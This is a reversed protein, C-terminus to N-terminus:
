DDGQLIREVTGRTVTHYGPRAEQYVRRAFALGEPTEALKRYLPTILWRRGVDILYAELHPYSPQYNNAIVHLFWSRKVEGNAKTSFNRARDLQRMQVATLPTPLNDLFHTWEQSSWQATSLEGAPTGAVWAEIQLEVMDFKPSTIKPANDPLGPLYVWEDIKLEDRLTEDNGLLESELYGLFHSSTMTQFAFKDFYGRLFADWKKRGVTEELLRLFLYGKEYAILSLIEDPDRGSLNIRLATDSNDAGLADIDGRLESMGLMAHMEMVDAGYVREMIRREFYTTFGENLWFDDWTANTVLNGSWSHALEHAITSVLSRDGAVLVPTVFTLRPNEMGGYPFSPPLVLIDFQGWRYEGYMAESTTMMSDTDAFEWTAADVMSPEAYVGCRESIARYELDGVALALLYTPLPQPMNFEYTGNPSKEIPNEASMLALVGPPTKIRARYTVRVGPHDQCPVWSRALLSQSQTFMFPHTGDRTQEATLWLIGAAQPTTEYYVNVRRTDPRIDIILPRGIFAVSDGVEFTTELDTEGLTVRHIKLASTDLLLETAEVRNELHLAVQGVLRQSEFDVTLDLDLHTVVVNPRAFSHNVVTPPVKVPQEEKCGPLLSLTGFLVVVSLTTRKVAKHIM